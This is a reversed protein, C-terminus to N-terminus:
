SKSEWYKLEALRSLLAKILNMISERVSDAREAPTSETIGAEIEDEAEINKILNKALSSNEPLTQTVTYSGFENITTLFVTSEGVKAPGNSCFYQWDNSYPHAVWVSPAVWGQMAKSVTVVQTHNKVATATGIFIQTTEDGVVNDLYMDVPLCSLASVNSTSLLFAIILGFGFISNRKM